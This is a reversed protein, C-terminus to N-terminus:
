VIKKKEKGEQNLTANKAITAYVDNATQGPSKFNEFITEVSKAQCMTKVLDPSLFKYKRILTEALVTNKSKYRNLGCAAAIDSARLSIQEYCSNNKKKSFKIWNELLKDVIKYDQVIDM